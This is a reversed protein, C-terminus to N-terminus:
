ENGEESEKRAQEIIFDITNALKLVGVFNDMQGSNYLNSILQDKTMNNRAAHDDLLKNLEEPTVELAEEKEYIADLLIARKVNYEATKKLEDQAQQPLSQLKNKGLLRITEKEIMSNPTDFPNVEILKNSIQKDLVFRDRAKREKNAEEEVNKKLEETSEYGVMLALDDDVEALKTEVINHVTVVFKAEKGALHEARYEKPFTVNVDATENAKIGVLQDEFGPIFHGRGLSEISYGKAEGGEFPKDGIFGKFDIVLSDGLQAGRDTIQRREAFQERYKMMASDFLEQEDYEPFDLEMGIYGQPDVKPLVEVTLSVSYSNDFDFKGPYKDGPKMGEVVPNTVPNINNDQIAKTYYEGILMQSVTPRVREGLVQKLRDIPAKGKRFGPIEAQNKITKIFEELKNDVVEAPINIAISYKTKNIEKVELINEQM